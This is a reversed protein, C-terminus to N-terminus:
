RRMGPPLLGSLGQRMLGKKGLKKVQKMMSQMDGFQKLLRNVEQVSTGSGLAVRRKRSAKLIDPNRREAKTMSSIIAEQRRIMGDDVKADKLQNKLKGIGPMLGLMGSMGGMKRIQRLQSAMDDLDFGGKEMKRALKEAEEQDISEAAKEVLSVVDGMGLIRGAIRDPHFPEIADIKEGTGLLKIPKGTVSRMSLAAGGRADGDIRTMVIGTLGVKDQFNTAVTVADQGTMADVVLLTEVPRVADRVAAVEAMLEEDIALRGATDLMVVDYGELRGTRIARRAIEVPQQGPVIPLTAVGAQEGLIRLQEQAAPRRTDLSAMLVKKRERTKLRLAIKATSTTKGSGQLGVMLVPVPPEANLNLGENGTGLMEVLHDHVIKVVQQGPTVSRLVEQGVARERVGAVFQKVVPLAVDAELLAVRVERLAAGVDEESLAGRRRLRDFIDGLRGSLGEFM